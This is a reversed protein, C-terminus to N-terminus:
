TYKDNYKDKDKQQHAWKKKDIQAFTKFIM